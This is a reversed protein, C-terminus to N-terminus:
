GQSWLQYYNLDHWEGDGWHWKPLTATHQYGLSEFLRCCAQNTSLIDAYIMSVGLRRFAYDEALHVAEAAYGRRRQEPAIYLGLGVRRSIADYGLLQLYGIPEENAKDEILLSLSGKLLISNTAELIYERIYSASLPNYISSSAWSTGDNEWRYLTDSDKDVEFARLRIRDSCFYTRSSTPMISTM